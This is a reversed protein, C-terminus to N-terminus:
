ATPAFDICGSGLVQDLTQDALWTKQCNTGNEVRCILWDLYPPEEHDADSAKESAVGNLAVRLSHAAPNPTPLLWVDHRPCRQVHRFGWILRFKWNEPRGDAGLCMPCYRKAQPLLFTKSTAEGRFEGRRQLVRIANRQIDDVPNGSVAAFNIVAETRGSKFHEHNIQSDRLLREMGRGTHFM